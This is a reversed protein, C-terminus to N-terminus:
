FDIRVRLCDCENVILGSKKISLSIDHSLNFEWSSKDDFLRFRPSFIWREPVGSLHIPKYKSTRLGIGDQLSSALAISVMSSFRSAARFEVVM